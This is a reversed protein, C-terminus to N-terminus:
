MYLWAEPAKENIPDSHYAFGATASGSTKLAIRLTGEVVLVALDPDMAFRVPVNCGGTRPVM